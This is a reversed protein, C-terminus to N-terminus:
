CCDQHHQGNKKSRLRLVIFIVLLTGYNIVMFWPRGWSIGDVKLDFLPWLFPTPFLRTTHSPIDLLIHLLWGCMEWPPSAPTPTVGPMKVGRYYNLRYWHVAWVLLFMCAFIILSHSPHYLADVVRFIFINAREDPTLHEPRPVQSYPVRKILVLWVMWCIAPTFSVLDPLVGWFVM